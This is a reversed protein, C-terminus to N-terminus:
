AASIIADIESASMGLQVALERLEDISPQPTQAQAFLLSLIEGGGMEFTEGNVIKRVTM